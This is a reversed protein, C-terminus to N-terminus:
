PNLHVILEEWSYLKGGIENRVTTASSKDKFATIFAGMPSPLNKSILFTAQTADILEEAQSYHNTYYQGVEGEYSNLFNIMCETADFMYVKAKKSVIESAHIKDVIRM